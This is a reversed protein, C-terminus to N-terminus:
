KQVKGILDVIKIFIVDKGNATKVAVHGKPVKQVNLSAITRGKTDELVEAVPENEKAVVQGITGKGFMVIDGDLLRYRCDFCNYRNDIVITKGTPIQFKSLDGKPKSISYFNIDGKIVVALLCCSTLLQLMKSRQIIVGEFEMNRVKDLGGETEIKEAFKRDFIFKKIILSYVLSTVMLILLAYMFLRFFYLSQQHIVIQQSQVMWSLGLFAAPLFVWNVLDVLKHRFFWEKRKQHHDYKVLDARFKEYDEVTFLDPRAAYAGEWIYDTRELDSSFYSKHGSKLKFYFVSWGVITISEIDDFPLEETTEGKHILLHTPFVQVSHNIRPSLWFFYLFPVSIFYSVSIVFEVQYMSIADSWSYLFLRVGWLVAVLLAIVIM